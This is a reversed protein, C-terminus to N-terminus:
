INVQMHRAKILLQHRENGLGILLGDAAKGVPSLSRGAAETMRCCCPCTAHHVEFRWLSSWRSCLFLSHNWLDTWLRCCVTSSNSEVEALSTAHLWSAKDVLHFLHQNSNLWVNCILWPIADSLWLLLLIASNYFINQKEGKKPKHTNFEWDIKAQHKKICFTLCIYTLHRRDKLHSHHNDGEKQWCGFSQNHVSGTWYVEPSSLHSNDSPLVAWWHTM